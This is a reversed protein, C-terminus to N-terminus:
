TFKPMGIWTRTSMFAIRTDDLQALSISTLLLNAALALFEGRIYHARIKRKFLTLKM